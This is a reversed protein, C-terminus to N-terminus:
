APRIQANVRHQPGRPGYELDAGSNSGAAIAAPLDYADMVSEIFVLTDNPDSLAEDLDAPTKEAPGRLLGDQNV